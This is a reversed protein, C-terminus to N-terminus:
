NGRKKDKVLPIVITAEKACTFNYKATASKESQPSIIQLKWWGSIDPAKSSGALTIQKTTDPKSVIDNWNNTDLTGANKFNLTFVPSKDGDKSVYQYKIEGPRTSTIAGDFNVAAKCQGPIQKPKAIFSVGSVMPIFNMKKIEVPIKEEALASAQCDIVANLLTTKTKIDGKGGSTPNCYLKYKATLANPYNVKFGKGLFAYKRFKPDLKQDPQNAVRDALEDNCIKVLDVSQEGNDVYQFIGSATKANPIYRNKPETEGVPGFGSINFSGKYNKNGRSEYKCKASFGLTVKSLHTKDVKSWKEGDLSIVKIVPASEFNQPATLKLRKVQNAFVNPAMSSLLFTVLALLIYNKNNTKM